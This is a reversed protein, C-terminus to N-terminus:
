PPGRQWSIGYLTQIEGRSAITTDRKLSEVGPTLFSELRSLVAIGPLLDRFQTNIRVAAIKDAFKKPLQGTTRLDIERLEYGDARVTITGEIDPDTLEAVPKFALRIMRADVMTTDGAYSFCHKAIFTSDALDQIEPVLVQDSGHIRRIVNGAEYVPKASSLIAFHDLIKAGEIAHPDEALSGDTKRVVGYDNFRAIFPHDKVLLRFQEANLIVQELLQVISAQEEASSFPPCGEALHVRVSGVVRMAELNISLKKLAVDLKVTDNEALRVTTDVPTYGLHRVRIRVNGTPLGRLTFVGHDNTFQELGASPVAVVSYPIPEASAAAKVTGLVVPATSLAGGLNSLSILLGPLM